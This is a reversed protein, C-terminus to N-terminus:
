SRVQIVHQMIVKNENPVRTLLVADVWTVIACLSPSFDSFSPDTKAILERAKVMTADDDTVVRYVLSGGRRFNYDGWLPSIIPVTDRSLRPFQTM